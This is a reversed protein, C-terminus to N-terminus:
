EPDLILRGANHEHYVFFNVESYGSTRAGSNDPGAPDKLESEEVDEITISASPRKSDSM